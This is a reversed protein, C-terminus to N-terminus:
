TTAKTEDKPTWVVRGDQDYSILYPDRQIDRYGKWRDLGYTLFLQGVTLAGAGNIGLLEVKLIFFGVFLAICIKVGAEV